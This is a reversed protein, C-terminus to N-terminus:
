SDEATGQAAKVEEIVGGAVVTEKDYFVVTQGPTIAQQPRKFKVCVQKEDWPTVIAEAERHQARIKAKVEISERPQEIALWNVQGALFGDAYVQHKTGVIIANKGPDIAIVYLPRNSSIGLGKRQGITYFLLGQHEGLVGGQTDLIPGPMTTQPIYARLFDGYHNSAIFCIEQSEPKNSVPLRLDEAIKRVQQKTLQALPLLINRLQDQTLMALFYSQDKKRDSAKQLLYRGTTKQYEIKAYHGTAVFDAGMQKTRELFAGFKIYKNCRVCPNPTRGQNYERCFDAVVQRDFVERLDFVYHSIGLNDAVRKAETEMEAWVKSLEAKDGGPWLRMTAGTVEYGQEKLLAAAVSSDVGGSMAVVVRRRM